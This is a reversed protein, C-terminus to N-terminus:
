YYGTEMPLDFCIRAFFEQDELGLGIPSANTTGIEWVLNNGGPRRLVASFVAKHDLDNDKMRYELGIVSDGEQIEVAVFPRASAESGGEEADVSIYILGTEEDRISVNGWTGVTLGERMMTRGADVIAQNLSEKVGSM